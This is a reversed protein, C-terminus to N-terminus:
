NLLARPAEVGINFHNFCPPFEQSCFAKMLKASFMTNRVFYDTLLFISHFYCAELWHSALGNCWVGDGEQDRGVGSKRQCIEANRIVEADVFPM